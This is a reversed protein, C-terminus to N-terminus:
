CEKGTDDADWWEIPMLEELCHFCYRKDGKFDDYPIPPEHYETACAPCYHGAISTPKLTMGM